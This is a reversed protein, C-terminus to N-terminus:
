ISDIIYCLFLVICFVVIFVFHKASHDLGGAPLFSAVWGPRDEIDSDNRNWILEVVVLAIGLAFPFAILIM